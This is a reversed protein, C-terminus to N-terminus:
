VLLNLLSSKGANPKGVIVTRIGEKRLLGDEASAILKGIEGLLEQTIKGLKESYGETSIHEPDDLASEIFAIEYLLAARLSKVKEAVSGRLQKISAQMSFQNKAQILDMVAEAESLDIRGSLFARKTFEGPEAMRAGAHLVAELVRKTLLVGGHCNIEVTDETTYSRPAKMVSVMVEDLITGNEEVFGYHITHTQWNKLTHEKKKNVVVRNAVAIAEPGSIRIIGIGADSLATAIAAITDSKM